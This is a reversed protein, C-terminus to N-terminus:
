RAASVARVPEGLRCPLLHNAGLSLHIAALAQGFGLAPLVRQWAWARIAFAAGFGVLAVALGPPHRRAAGTADALAGLDITSAIAVAAVLTSGLGVAALRRWGLRAARSSLSAM